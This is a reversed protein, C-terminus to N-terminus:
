DFFYNISTCNNGNARANFEGYGFYIADAGGYVAQKFTDASAPALIEFLDRSSPFRDKYDGYALLEKKLVEGEYTDYSQDTYPFSINYRDYYSKTKM